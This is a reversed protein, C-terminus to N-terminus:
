CNDIRKFLYKWGYILFAVLLAASIAAAWPFAGKAPIGAKDLWAMDCGHRGCWSSVVVLSNNLVHAFVAPWLSGTSLLVYGFFAGLVMRLLFGFFQMHACSFIIAAIWVAGRGSIYGPLRTMNQLAGRFFFEEGLGACLGVVLLNTLLGGVSDTALLTESMKAAAGEWQRLQVELGSMSDPLTMSENLHILWNFAPMGLIFVCIVGVYPRWGGSSTLGMFRLFTHPHANYTGAIGAFLFCLLASCVGQLLYHTRPALGPIMSLASAAVGAFVLGCFFIAALWLLNRIYIRIDSM